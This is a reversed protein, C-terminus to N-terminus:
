WPVGHGQIPTKQLAIEDSIATEIASQDLQAQAWAICNAETPTGADEDYAIFDDADADYTHSTTGYRSATYTVADDGSGVTESGVCQWHIVTIGGDSLNRETMSVSWTHTVAM